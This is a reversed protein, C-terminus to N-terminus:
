QFKKPSLFYIDTKDSIFFSFSTLLLSVIGM